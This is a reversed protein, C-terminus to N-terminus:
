LLSAISFQLCFVVLVQTDRVLGFQLKKLLIRVLWKHELPSLGPCVPTGENLRKLWLIRLEKLTLPKKKKKKASGGGGAEDSSSQKWDHNSKASRAKGQLSALDDLAQNIMGVTYGSGKKDKVKTTGVVHQVVVSFDGQGEAKTRVVDRDTFHVLM